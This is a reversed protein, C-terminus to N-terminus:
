RREICVLHEGAIDTIRKTLIDISACLPVRQRGCFIEDRIRMGIIDDFGPKVRIILSGPLAAAGPHLCDLDGDVVGIVPVGLRSLVDGAVATTDDGVTVAAAAGKAEEFAEEACHDILALDRGSGVSSVPSRMESPSRQICGNSRRISGSRVVAAELDLPPLKDIGHQKPVAGRIEVIKGKSTLIKVKRATARGVVTGNISICEGPKVGAIERVILDGDRLPKHLPAPALIDFGLDRSIEGALCSSGGSLDSVFRGGSDIQILPKQKSAYRAYVESGFVLGTERSKAQNLLVLLDSRQGLDRLSESPMRRQSIDITSELGADIAAVRGMTGGLAAEVRGFKTLYSLLKVAWGSDIVEPGHIVVGVEAM